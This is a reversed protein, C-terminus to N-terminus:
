QKIEFASSGSKITLLAIWGFLDDHYFIQLPENKLRLNRHLKGRLLNLVAQSQAANLSVIQLIHM